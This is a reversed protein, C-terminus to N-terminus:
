GQAQNGLRDIEDNLEMMRYKPAELDRFHGKCLAWLTVFLISFVGLLYTGISVVGFGTLEQKSITAVFQTLRYTSGVGAITLVLAYFLMKGKSVHSM